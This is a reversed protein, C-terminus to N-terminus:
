YPTDHIPAKTNYRTALTPCLQFESEDCEIAGHMKSLVSWTSADHRHRLGKKFFSPYSTEHTHLSPHHKATLWWEKYLSMTFPSKRIAQLMGVSRQLTDTIAKDNKVNFHDFVDPKTWYKEFCPNDNVISTIPFSLCSNPSANIMETYEEFKLLSHQRSHPAFEKGNKYQPLGRYGLSIEKPKSGKNWTPITCGGDSYFLLDNAQLVESLMYYIIAPKWTWFAHTRDGVIRAFEDLKQADKWEPISPLDKGRFGRVVDFFGLSSAQRCLRDRSKAFAANGYTIFYKKM